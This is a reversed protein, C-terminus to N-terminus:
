SITGRVLDVWGTICVLQETVNAGSTSSAAFPQERIVKIDFEIKFIGDETSFSGEVRAYDTNVSLSMNPNTNTLVAPNFFGQGLNNAVPDSFDDGVVATDGSGITWIRFTSRLDRNADNFTVNFALQRNSAGTSFWQLQFKSVSSETYDFLVLTNGFPITQDVRIRSPTVANALLVIQDSSVIKSADNTTLNNVVDKDSLLIDKGM